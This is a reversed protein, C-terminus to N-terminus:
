APNVMQSWIHKFLHDRAHYWHVQSCYPHTTSAVKGPYVHVMDPLMTGLCLTHTLTYYKVWGSTLVLVNSFVTSASTSFDALHDNNDDRFHVVAHATM